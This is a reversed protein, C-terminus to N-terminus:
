EVVLLSAVFAEFGCAMRRESRISERAGTPPLPPPDISELSSAFTISDSPWSGVGSSSSFSTLSASASPDPSMSKRSTVPM